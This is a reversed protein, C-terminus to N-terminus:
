RGSGAPEGPDTRRLALRTQPHVLAAAAVLALVVVAVAVPANVSLQSGGALVLLLSWALAPGRAGRRRRWLAVSLGGLVLAFVVAFGVVAATGGSSSGRVAEVAVTVALSGFAAAQVALLLSAVLVTPPPPKVRVLSVAGTACPSCGPGRGHCVPLLGTPGRPVRSPSGLARSRTPGLANECRRRDPWATVGGTHHM